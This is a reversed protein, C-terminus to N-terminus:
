ACDHSILLLISACVKFKFQLKDMKNCKNCIFKQKYEDEDSKCTSDLHLYM